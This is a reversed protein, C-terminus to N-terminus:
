PPSLALSIVLEGVEGAPPARLVAHIAVANDPTSDNGASSVAPGSWFATRVSTVVSSLRQGNLANARLHALGAFPSAVVEEFRLEAGPSGRWEADLRYACNSRVVLNLITPARGDFKLRLRASGGPGVPPAEGQPFQLRAACPISGTVTTGSVDMGFSGIAMAAALLVAM